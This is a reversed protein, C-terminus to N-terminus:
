WRSVMVRRRQVDQDHHLDGGAPYVDEGTVACGGGRPRRLLCAVEQDVETIRDRCEPEQDPVPVRLEGPVKSATKAASATSTTL